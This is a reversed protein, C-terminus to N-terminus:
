PLKYCASSLEGLLVFKPGAVFIQRMARRKSLRRIPIVLVRHSPGFSVGLSSNVTSWMQHVPESSTKRPIAKSFSRFSPPSVQGPIPRHHLPSRFLSVRDRIRTERTVMLDPLPTEAKPSFHECSSLPTDLPGSVTQSPLSRGGLRGAVGIKVKGWGGGVPLFLGISVGEETPTPLNAHVV